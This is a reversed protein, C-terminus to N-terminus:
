AAAHSRALTERYIRLLADRNHALTYRREYEARASARLASLKATDPWLRDIAAALASADGPEFLVGTRDHEILEAVSGIRSGIVPLGSAFAELITLPLGEYWESPFILVRANAMLALTRAHPQAGLLELQSLGLAGAQRRLEDELAGAGVIKLPPPDGLLAFARLLTRLGKEAALRGVFLAYDGSGASAGPDPHVCNPKVVVREAPLGAAAILKSRMFESASVYTDVHAAYTGLSRHLALMAAVTASAARSGTVRGDVARTLDHESCEECIRGDRVFTAAPCALRYNQLSQVVAAGADKCTGYAAPSILPLTNGFHAIDPQERRLLARLERQTDWAWLTRAPLTATRWPGDRAIERNDRTYEIVDVGASRLAASELAFARGEGGPEQYHSHVLLVKMAATEFEIENGVRARRAPKLCPKPTYPTLRKPM